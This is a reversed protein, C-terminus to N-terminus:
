AEKVQQYLAWWTYPNTIDGHGNIKDAGGDLGYIRIKPDLEYTTPWPQIDMLYEGCHRPGYGGMAAYQSPPEKTEAATRVEGLDADRRVGVHFLNHLPFDKRSYTAFIPKEVRDLVSRYGGPKGTGPVEDAFSLHSIAAQLLLMSDAKRKEPLKAFKLASLLLKCGYSHGILHLRGSFCDYMDEILKKVGTAGVTGARDKMQYVTASRIIDRPLIKMILDGLKGASQPTSTPTADDDDGAVGSTEKTPPTTEVSWQKWGALIEFRSLVGAFPLEDDPAQYVGELLEALEIAQATDIEAAQALEYFRGRSATPVMSALEAVRFREEAIAAEEDESLRGPTALIKPGFEKETVLITSPWYIGVLLPRYNSATKLNFKERMALFGEVFSDYRETAEKWANNWGHSFMYVDTYPDVKLREMLHKRTEPGTCEGERDFPIIYWPIEIGNLHVTKYPGIPLSDM